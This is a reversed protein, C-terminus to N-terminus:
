WSGPPGLIESKRDASAAMLREIDPEESSPPPLTRSPAPEGIKRVFEEFGAPLTLTLSRTPGDATNAYGHPLDKPLWVFSGAVAEWKTDGCIGALSGELVYFAEDEAHHVHRPTAFGPPALFEVLSLVGGTSEGSAIVTALNGLFWFAEAEDDAIAFHSSTLPM